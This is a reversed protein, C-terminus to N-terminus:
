LWFAIHKSSSQIIIMDIYLPITQDIILITIM